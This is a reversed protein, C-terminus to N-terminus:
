KEDAITGIKIPISPRIMTLFLQYLQNTTMSIMPGIKIAIPITKELGSSIMPTLMKAQLIIM